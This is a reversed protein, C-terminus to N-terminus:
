KTSIGVRGMPNRSPTKDTIEEATEGLVGGTVTHLLAQFQAQMETHKATYYAEVTQKEFELERCQKDLEATKALATRLDAEMTANFEFFTRLQKDMTAFKAHSGGLEHQLAEKERAIKGREESSHLLKESVEKHARGLRECGLRLTKNAEKYEGNQVQVTESSTAIHACKREASDLKLRLVTVQTLEVESEALRAQLAGKEQGALALQVRLCEVDTTEQQRQARLLVLEKSDAQRIRALAEYNRQVTGNEKRREELELEQEHVVRELSLINETAARALYAMNKQEDMPEDHAPPRTTAIM